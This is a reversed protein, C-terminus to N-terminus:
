LRPCRGRIQSLRPWPVGPCHTGLRHMLRKAEEASGPRKKSCRIRGSLAHGGAGAIADYIKVKYVTDGIAYFLESSEHELYDHACISDVRSTHSGYNLALREAESWDALALCDAFAEAGQRRRRQQESVLDAHETAPV